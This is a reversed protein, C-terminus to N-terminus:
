EEGSPPPLTARSLVNFQLQHTETGKGIALLKFRILGVQQDDPAFRLINMEEDITLNPVETELQFRRKNQSPFVVDLKRELVEGVRVSKFFRAFNESNPDGDTFSNWQLPGCPLVAVQADNKTSDHYLVIERGPVYLIDVGARALPDFQIPLDAYVCHILRQERYSQSDIYRLRVSKLSANEQVPSWTVISRADNFRNPFEAIAIGPFYSINGGLDATAVATHYPEDSNSSAPVQMPVLSPIFVKDPEISPLIRGFYIKPVANGFLSRSRFDMVRQTSLEFFYPGNIDKSEPTTQFLIHRRDFPFAHEFEFQGSFEVKGALSIRFLKPPQSSDKSNIWATLVSGDANRGLIAKPTMSSWQRDEVQKQQVLSQSEIFLVSSPNEGAVCITESDSWVALPTTPLELSEIKQFTVSDFIHLTREGQLIAYINLGDSSTTMQVLPQDGFSILSAESSATVPSGSGLRSSVKLRPLDTPYTIRAPPRPVIDQIPRITPGLVPNPAAPLPLSNQTPTAMDVPPPSSPTPSPVNRNRSDPVSRPPRSNPNPDSDGGERNRNSRRKSDIKRKVDDLNAKGISNALMPRIINSIELAEGPVAKRGNSLASQIWFESEAPLTIGNATGEWQDSQPNYVLKAVMRPGDGPAGHTPLRTQKDRPREGKRRSTWYNVNVVKLQRLPDCATIRIELDFKEKPAPSAQIRFSSVQGDLHDLIIDAPISFGIQTSGLRAITMSTVNGKEDVIPGGSCGPIMTGDVQIAFTQGGDDKKLSSISAPGVTLTPNGELGALSQGLPFGLIYVKLTERLDKTPAMSLPEVPTTLGEVKVFALDEEVNTAVVRGKLRKEERPLGSNLVIEIDSPIPDTDKEIGVVHACTAVLSDHVFFGTGQVEGNGLPTKIFVTAAKVKQLVIPTLGQAVLWSPSFALMSWVFVRIANQSRSIM